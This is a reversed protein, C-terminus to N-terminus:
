RLRAEMEKYDIKGTGLQPLEDVEMVRRINHLGSLGAARIAQNASEREIAATTFLVIDPNQEVPTAVVALLPGEESLHAFHQQLVTEVAPLSIMEGGLKIFRKLRGSFTLLGEGNEVVLDGTRYWQKGECEVFPSPGQHQHYGSFVSDGRVLLVGEQGIPVREGSDVGVIVHELSSMIRGITGPRPDAEHNISICPSCETVGYGELIVTQPCMQAMLDFVRQPCKEAGAVVIRLSALQRPEATRLIGDL